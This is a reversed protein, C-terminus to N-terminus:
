REFHDGNALDDATTTAQRREEDEIRRLLGRYTRVTSVSTAGLGLFVGILTFVFNTGLQGDLWQGAVLGLAVSAALTAGFQLAVTIAQFTALSPAKPGKPEKM